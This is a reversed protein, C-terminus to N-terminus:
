LTRVSLVEVAECKVGCGGKWECGEGERGGRVRGEM